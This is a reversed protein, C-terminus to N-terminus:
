ARRRFSGFRIGQIGRDGSAPPEPDVFLSFVDSASGGQGDSVTVTVTTVGTVSPAQGSFTKTSTDFSAWAPLGSASYTLMHGDPDFAHGSPITYSFIEDTYVYSDYIPDSIIPSNNIGSGHFIDVARWKVYLHDGSISNNFTVIGTTGSTAWSYTNSTLGYGIMQGNLYVEIDSALVGDGSPITFNAANGFDTSITDNATTARKSKSKTEKFGLSKSTHAHLASAESGDTLKKLNAATVTTGTSAVGALAQIIDAGSVTSTGNTITFIASAPITLGGSATVLGTVVLSGTITGGSRPFFEDLNYTASDTGSLTMSNHVTLTVDGGAQRSASKTLLINNVVIGSVLHNTDIAGDKIQPSRFKAM